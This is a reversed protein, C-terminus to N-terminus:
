AKSKLLKLVPVSDADMSGLKKAKEKLADIVTGKAAKASASLTKPMISKETKVGFKENLEANLKVGLKGLEIYHALTMDMGLAYRLERTHAFHPLSDTLADPLLSLLAFVPEAFPLAAKVALARIGDPEDFVCAPIDAINLMRCQGFSEAAFRYADALDCLAKKTPEGNKGAEMGMFGDVALLELPKIRRYLESGYKKDLLLSGEALEDGNGRRYAINELADSIKSTRGFELESKFVGAEAADMAWAITDAALSADLGLERMENNWRIILKMDSNLINSGLLAVTELEPGRVLKKDLMVSRECRIPCYTCSRCAVNYKDAFLEGSISEADKFSGKAYNKTPLMGHSDLYAAFGLTGYKPLLKGTIPHNRIAASWEVNNARASEFDAVPIENNGYVVIGKLKKAGFVAGIDCHEAEREGSVVNAYKVLNEGAPGIVLTGCKAHCGRKEDLASRLEKQADGTKLGWLLKANHLKFSGNHIELWKPEECKGKLILADYGAKKLYLGLEGGCSAHSAGGTVPSLSSVTFHNSCPAGTGTLPGTAIVILNEASLATENGKLCDALIKSAMMKGGIYLTRDDDSWPYDRLEGTSLDLMAVKNMYGSYKSM